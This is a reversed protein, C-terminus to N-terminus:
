LDDITKAIWKAAASVVLDVAERTSIQYDKVLQNLASNLGSDVTIQALQDDTTGREAM